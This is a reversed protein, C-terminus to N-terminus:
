VVEFTYVYLVSLFPSEFLAGANDICLGLCGANQLIWKAVHIMGQRRVGIFAALWSTIKHVPTCRRTAGSLGALLVVSNRFVDHHLRINTDIM